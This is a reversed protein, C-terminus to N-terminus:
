STEECSESAQSATYTRHKCVTQFGMRQYMAESVGMARLAAMTCGRRVGEQIAAWTVAQAFGRRRYAPLTAVGHITAIGDIHIFMASCVPKGDSHGTFLAIDPDDLVSPPPWMPAVTEVPVAFAAAIMEFLAAHAAPDALRRIELGAPAPPPARMRALVLAPEDEAIRWGAARLESELPHGADGEVLIGYAGGLGAFFDEAVEVIRDLPPAPGLVAAFNFGPDPFDQRRYAVGDRVMHRANKQYRMTPLPALAMAHHVVARLDSSIM